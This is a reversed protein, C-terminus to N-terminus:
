RLAPKGMISQLDPLSPYVKRIINKAKEFFLTLTMKETLGNLQTVTVENDLSVFSHDLIITFPVWEDQSLKIKDAIKKNRFDIETRFGQQGILSKVDSALPHDGMIRVQAPLLAVPFHFGKSAISEHVLLYMWREISGFSAHCIIPHVQNKGDHSVYTIHYSKANVLDLQGDCFGINNKSHTFYHQASWYNGTSDLLRFNVTKGLLTELKAWESQYKEYFDKQVDVSVAFPFHFFEALKAQALIMSFYDQWM